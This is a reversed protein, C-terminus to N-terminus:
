VVESRLGRADKLGSWIRQTMGTMGGLGGGCVRDSIRLQEDFGFKM